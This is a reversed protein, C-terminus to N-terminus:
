VIIIKLAKDACSKMRDITAYLHHKKDDDDYNEESIQKLAEKYQENEEQLRKVTSLLPEVKSVMCKAFGVMEGESWCGAHAQKTDEPCKMQAIKQWDPNSCVKCIVRRKHGKFIRKCEICTNLYNGNEHSYDETWNCAELTGFDPKIDSNM